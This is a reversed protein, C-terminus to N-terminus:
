KILDKYDLEFLKAYKEIRQLRKHIFDLSVVQRSEGIEKALQSQNKIGYVRMLKKIKDTALEM